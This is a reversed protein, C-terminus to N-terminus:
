NNKNNDTVKEGEGRRRVKASFAQQPLSIVPRRNQRGTAKRDEWSQLSLKGPEGGPEAPEEGKPGDGRRLRPGKGTGGKEMIASQVQRAITQSGSGGVVDASSGREGGGSLKKKKQEGAGLEQQLVATHQHKKMELGYTFRWQKLWNKAGPGGGFSDTNLSKYGDSRKRLTKLVRADRHKGWSEQSRQARFHRHV